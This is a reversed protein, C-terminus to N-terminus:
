RSVKRERRRSAGRSRPRVDAGDCTYRKPIWGGNEFAPTALPFAAVREKQVGGEATAGKAPQNMEWAAAAFVLAAALLLAGGSPISSAARMSDKAM